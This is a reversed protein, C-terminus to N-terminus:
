ISDNYEQHRKIAKAAGWIGNWVPVLVGEEM